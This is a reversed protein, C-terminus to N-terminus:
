ARLRIIKAILRAYAVNQSSLLCVHSWKSSAAILVMFYRFPRCPLHIPGYIDGQIRKLFFLSETVVKLLSLKTILKGESCATCPNENPLLIKLHKLPHGHSNEIIQWIMISGPHRLWDHWLMFLKPESCKLHIVINTEIFKM